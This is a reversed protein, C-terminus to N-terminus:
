TLDELDDIRALIRARIDTRDLKEQAEEIWKACDILFGGQAYNGRSALDKGMRTLAEIADDTDWADHWTFDSM